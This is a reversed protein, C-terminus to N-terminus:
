LNRKQCAPAYEVKDSASHNHDYAISYNQIPKGNDDKSHAIEVYELDGAHCIKHPSDYTIYIKERHDHRNNWENQFAICQDKTIDNIFSSVKSDSYLKM